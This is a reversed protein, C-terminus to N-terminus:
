AHSGEVDALSLIGVVRGRCTRHWWERRLPGDAAVTAGPRSAGFLFMVGDAGTFARSRYPQVIKLRPTGVTGIMLGYLEGLQPETDSPDLVAFEGPRIHPSWRDHLVPVAIHGAPVVDHLTLARFEAAAPILAPIM